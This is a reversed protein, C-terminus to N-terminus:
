TTAQLKLWISPPPLPFLKWDKFPPLPPPQSFNYGTKLRPACTESRCNEWKTAGRGTILSWDRLPMRSYAGVTDLSHKCIPKHISVSEHTRMSVNQLYMIVYKCAHNCMFFFTPTRPPPSPPLPPLPPPPPPPPSKGNISVYM